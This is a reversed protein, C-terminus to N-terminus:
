IVRQLYEIVSELRNNLGNFVGNQFELKGCHDSPPLTPPVAKGDMANTTSEVKLKQALTEITNIYNFYRSLQQDMEAISIELSTHDKDMRPNGISSVNTKALEPHYM